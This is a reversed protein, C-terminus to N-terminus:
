KAPATSMTVLYALIKEEIVADVVVKGAKKNAGQVMGPVIKRWGDESQSKVSKLLHCSQCHTKYLEKGEALSATTAGPFKVSARDVDSQTFTVVKPSCGVLAIFLFISFKSIKAQM